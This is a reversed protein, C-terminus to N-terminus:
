GNVDVFNEGGYVEKWLDHVKTSKELSVLISKAGLIVGVEANFMVIREDERVSGILLPGVVRWGLLDSGNV